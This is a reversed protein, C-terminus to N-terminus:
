NRRSCLAETGTVIGTIITTEGEKITPETKCFSLLLAAVTLLTLIIRIAKKRNLRKEGETFYSTKTDVLMKWPCL